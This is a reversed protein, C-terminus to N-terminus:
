NKGRLVLYKRRYPDIIKALGEGLLSFGMVILFIFLSPIFGLAFISSTQQYYQPRRGLEPTTVPIEIGLFGLTSLELMATGVDITAYILLTTIINPMDKRIM